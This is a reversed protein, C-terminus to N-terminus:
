VKILRQIAQYCEDTPLGVVNTYSGNISKIGVLGFWDQIGYSGAKDFPKFHTIYFDIQEPSLQNFQVETYCSIAETKGDFSIVVGTNVIHKQGSLLHLMEKANEEDVPKGLLQNSFVVTTDATLLIETDTKIKKLAEMKKNAVFSAVQISPLDSPYSEDIDLSIIELQFGLESLLQKRRPSGSGLVISNTVM